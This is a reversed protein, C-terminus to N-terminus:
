GVSVEVGALHPLDTVGFDCGCQERLTTLQGRDEKCVEDSLETCVAYLKENMWRNYRSMTRAYDPMNV